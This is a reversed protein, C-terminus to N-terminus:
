GGGSAARECESMLVTITAIEIKDNGIVQVSPTIGLKAFANIGPARCVQRRVMPTAQSLFGAIDLRQSSINVLEVQYILERERAYVHNLRSESDLQKPLKANIKEAVRQLHERSGVQVGPPLADIDSPAFLVHSIIKSSMIALLPILISGVWKRKSRGGGSTATERAYRSGAVARGDYVDPMATPADRPSAAGVRPPAGGDRRSMALDPTSASAEPPAEGASLPQRCRPCHGDPRPRHKLGCQPCVTLEM